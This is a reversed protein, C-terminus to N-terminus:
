WLNDVILTSFQQGILHIIYLKNAERLLGGPDAEGALTNRGRHDEHYGNIDLNLHIYRQNPSAREVIVKHKTWDQGNRRAGQKPM